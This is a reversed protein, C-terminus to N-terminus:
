TILSVGIYKFRIWISIPYWVRILSFGCTSKNKGQHLQRPFREHLGTYGSGSHLILKIARSKVHDSTSHSLFRKASIGKHFFGTDEMHIFQSQWAAIDLPFLLIYLPFLLCTRIGSRNQIYAFFDCKLNMSYVM